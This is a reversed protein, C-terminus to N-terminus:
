YLSDSALVHKWGINKVMSNHDVETSIIDTLTQQHAIIEVLSSV